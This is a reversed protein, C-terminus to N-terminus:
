VEISVIYYIINKINQQQYSRTESLRYYLINWGPKVYIYDSNSIILRKSDLVVFLSVVHNKTGTRM